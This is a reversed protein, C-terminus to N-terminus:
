KNHIYVEVFVLTHHVKCKRAFPLPFFMWKVTNTMYKSEKAHTDFFKRFGATLRVDKRIRGHENHKRNVFPIQNM